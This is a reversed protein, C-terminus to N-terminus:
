ARSPSAQSRHAREHTVEVWPSWQFWKPLDRALQPPGDVTIRGDRLSDEWRCYGQFVDALDATTTTALVVDYGPHQVCVSAEGRDLVVWIM